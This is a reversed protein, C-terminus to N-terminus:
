FQNLYVVILTIGDFIILLLKVHLLNHSAM